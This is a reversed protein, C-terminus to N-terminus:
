DGTYIEYYMPTKETGVLKVIEAFDKDYENGVPTFSMNSYLKYCVIEFGYIFLADDDKTNYVIVEGNANLKETLTSAYEYVDFNEEEENIFNIPDLFATLEEIKLGIGFYLVRPGAPM